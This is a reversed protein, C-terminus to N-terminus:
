SHGRTETLWSSDMSIKDGTWALIVLNSGSTYVVKTLFHKTKHLLWEQGELDFKVQFDLNVGNEAVRMM